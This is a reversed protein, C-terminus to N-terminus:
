ESDARKKPKSTHLAAINAEYVARVTSFWAAAGKWGKGALWEALRKGEYEALLRADHKDM